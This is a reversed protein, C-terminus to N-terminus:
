PETSTPDILVLVDDALVRAGVSALVRNVRGNRPSALTYEMKMAEVVLLAQGEDVEDGPEVNVAIVTGPMPSRIENEVSSSGKVDRQPSVETVAFVDGQIWIWATPGDVAVVSRYTDEGTTLILGDPTLVASCQLPAEDEIAIEAKWPRGTAQVVKFSGEQTALRWWSPAAPGGLRWGDPEEWRDVVKRSPEREFLRTMVFAVYAASPVPISVLDHLEREVIGTDLRGAVVDPHRLLARLFSLNTPFGLIVTQSLANKLRALAVSRNPGWAVVKSLMPDYTTGIYGGVQLSSDVRIGDGDPEVLGLLHGGTPVFERLPNEAYVRAEVAHGSFAIDDQGFSLHEGAAVRLQQEVLDIGTVMETVPHEVQLRTNMEMFFFEDPDNASVIFEITGAGQYKMSRAISVAAAGMDMRQADTLLPSPTEEIIKQHRRQLSCEREGLHVVSGYNDALVQIEIHRPSTVFRELFLTDDGFAAKAERRASAIEDLLRAPHNVLRMGKGGGGASPKILVPFGVEDAASVLDHDSMDLDARGPVVRVGVAQVARKARIKDGMTSIAESSPGVFVLGQDRCATAFAANEALFGYGPHVGEVGSAEAAALLRPISLYSDSAPAPGLRIALDAERVHLANRDDDSYVAVSRVGLYRLTRMIRVAIEGRNAVLVADFM